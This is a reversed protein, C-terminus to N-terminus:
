ACLRRGLMTQCVLYAGSRQRLSPFGLRSCMVGFVAISFGAGAVSSISRLCNWFFVYPSISRTGDWGIGCSGKCTGSSWKGFPSQDWAPTNSLQYSYGQRYREDIQWHTSGTEARDVRDYRTQYKLSNSWEHNINM